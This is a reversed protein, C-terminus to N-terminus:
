DFEGNNIMYAVGLENFSMSLRMDIGPKEGLEELM